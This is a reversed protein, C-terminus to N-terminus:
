LMPGDSRNSETTDGEPSVGSKARFGLAGESSPSNDDIRVPIGTSYLPFDHTRSNVPCHLVTLTAEGKDFKKDYHDDNADKCSNRDRGEQVLALVAVLCRGLAVQAVGCGRDLRSGHVVVAVVGLDKAGAGGRSTSSGTDADTKCGSRGAKGERERLADRHECLLCASGREAKDAHVAGRTGVVEHIRLGLAAQLRGSVCRLRKGCRAASGPDVPGPPPPPPPPAGGGGGGAVGGLLLPLMVLALRSGVEDVEESIIECRACDALHSRVRARERATLGNRAYDGLRGIAWQCEGFATADSVHAQLWATRLGERARYSLAAVGNASIGLIPAVEHPDMGEIETYWLVCQWREPLSRFARATLTRDLAATAPDAPAAPDEFEGIDDVNVDHRAQGWRSALNRITTYLYPRFAGDPGGGALVRQYISAYAEAVLDEPDISSTFQRAVLLGSRSHREWLEAFAGRDGARALLILSEDSVIDVHGNIEDM